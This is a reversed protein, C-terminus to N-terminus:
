PSSGCTPAVDARDDALSISEGVSAGVALMELWAEELERVSM